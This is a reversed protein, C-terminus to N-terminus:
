KVPFNFHDEPKRTFPENILEYHWWEKAYNQFGCKEMTEKLLLRNQQAENSILPSITYSIEGFFDFIAGMDLPENTQLNYLGLDIASGRSHKSYRAIFGNFLATKDHFTPYFREKNKIDVPDNAWEWFHDCASQPRYADYVMIGLGKQKFIQAANVAATAAPKTLIICNRQYGNIPRGIFNDNGLYKLNPVITIDLEELYVFEKQLASM